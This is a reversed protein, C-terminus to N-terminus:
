ATTEGTVRLTAADSTAAATGANVVRRVWVAKYSNPPIDGITLPTGENTIFSVGLPTTGEDAITQETAGIAATGLGIAIQTDASPTDSVIQIAASKLTDVTNTNRIYFCRYETDGDRSETANVIDFLNHLTASVIETATIAGGLSNTSKFLKIQAATVAM